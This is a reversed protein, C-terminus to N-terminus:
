IGGDEVIPPGVMVWCCNNRGYGFNVVTANYRFLTPLEVYWENWLRTSFLSARPNESVAEYVNEFSISSAPATNSEAIRVPGGATNWTASLVFRRASFSSDVPLM